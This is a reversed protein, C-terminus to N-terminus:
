GDERRVNPNHAVSTTVSVLLDITSNCNECTARIFQPFHLFPGLNVSIGFEVCNCAPCKISGMGSKLYVSGGHEKIKQMFERISDGAYIRTCGDHSRLWPTLGIKNIDAVSYPSNTYSYSPQVLCSDFAVVIWNGKDMYPRGANHEYPTNNWDHGWAEEPGIDSFYAFNEEVYCLKYNDM